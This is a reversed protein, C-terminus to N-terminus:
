CGRSSKVEGPTHIQGASTPRKKIGRTERRPEESSRPPLSADPHPTKEPASRVPPHPVSGCQHVGSSPLRGDQVQCCVAPDHGVAPDSANSLLDHAASVEISRGPGASRWTTKRGNNSRDSSNCLMRPPLESLNAPGRDAQTVPGEHSSHLKGKASLFCRRVPGSPVSAGGCVLGSSSLDCPRVSRVRDYLGSTRVLLGLGM